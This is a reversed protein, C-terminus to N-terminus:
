SQNTEIKSGGLCEPSDPSMGAKEFWEDPTMTHLALAHIPGEILAKLQENVMRHRALLMKGEFLDTVVTVKFHTESGEPVNHMDSENIVEYHLPSLSQLQDEIQQKVITNIM